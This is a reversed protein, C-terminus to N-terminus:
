NNRSFVKYSLDPNDRNDEDPVLDVTSKSLRRKVLFGDGSPQKHVAPAAPSIPPANNYQAQPKKIAKMENVTKRNWILGAIFGVAAGVVPIGALTSVVGVVGVAAAWHVTATVGVALAVHALPGAYLLAAAIGVLVASIAVGIAIGFLVRQWPKWREHAPKFDEDLIPQLSVTESRVDTQKEVEANKPAEQSQRLQQAIVASTSLGNFDDKEKSNPNKRSEVSEESKTLKNKFKTDCTIGQNSPQRADGFSPSVPKGPTQNIIAEVDARALEIGRADIVPRCKKRIARVEEISAAFGIQMLSQLAEKSPTLLGYQQDDTADRIAQIIQHYVGNELMITLLDMMESQTEIRAELYNFVGDIMAVLINRPSFYQMAKTFDVVTEDCLHGSFLTLDTISKLMKPTVPMVDNTICAEHDIHDLDNEHIFIETLKQKNKDYFYFKDEHRLFARNFHLPLQDLAAQNTPSVNIQVIECGTQLGGVYRLINSSCRSLHKDPVAIDVAIQKAAALWYSFLAPSDYLESAHQFGWKKRTQIEECSYQTHEQLNCLGCQIATDETMECEEIKECEKQLFDILEAYSLRRSSTSTHNLFDQVAHLLRSLEAFLKDPALDLSEAIQKLHQLLPLDTKKDPHNLKKDCFHLIFRQLEQLHTVTISEQNYKETQLEIHQM